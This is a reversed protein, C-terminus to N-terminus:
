RSQVVRALGGIYAPASELANFGDACVDALDDKPLPKGPEKTHPFGNLHSWLLEGLTTQVGPDQYARSYWSGVVIHVRGAALARGLPQARVPKSKAPSYFEVPGIQHHNLVRRIHEQDVKGAQAPDVACHQVVSPGDSIATARMFADVEPPEERCADVELLWHRRSRDVGWKVTATFDPDPNAKSPRTAAKDWTRVRRRLIPV